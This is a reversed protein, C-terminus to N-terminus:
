LPRLLGANSDERPYPSPRSVPRGSSSCTQSCPSPRCTCTAMRSNHSPHLSYYLSVCPHERVQVHGFALSFTSVWKTIADPHRKLAAVYLALLVAMVGGFVVLIILSGAILNPDCYTCTTTEDLRVKQHEGFATCSGPPLGTCAVAGSRCDNVLSSVVSLYQDDRVSGTTSNGLGAGWNSPPAFDNGLLGIRDVQSALLWVPLQGSMADGTLDLVRLRPLCGLGSADPSGLQGGDVAEQGGGATLQEEEAPTAEALTSGRLGPNGQLYVERLAPLECLLAGLDLGGSLDILGNSALNLSVIVCQAYDAKTGTYSGSHCGGAAASLSGDTPM